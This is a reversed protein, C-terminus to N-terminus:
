RLIWGSLKDAAIGEATTALLSLYDFGISTKPRLAWEPKALGTIM